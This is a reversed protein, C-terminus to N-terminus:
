YVDFHTHKTVWKNISVPLALWAFISLTIISLFWWLIWRGFLQIGTGDFTLRKGDIITHQVEWRKKFVIAWPTAIFLTIICLLGAVISVGLNGLVGGDFSSLNEEEVKVDSM